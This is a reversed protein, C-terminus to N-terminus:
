LHTAMTLRVCRSLLVRLQPVAEMLHARPSTQPINKHSRVSPHPGLRGHATGDRPPHAQSVYSFYSLLDRVAIQM